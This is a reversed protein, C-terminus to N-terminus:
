EKVEFFEDLRAKRAAHYEEDRDMWWQVSTDPFAAALANAKSISLASDRCFVFDILEFVSWRLTRTLDGATMGLAHASEFLWEGSSKIEQEM